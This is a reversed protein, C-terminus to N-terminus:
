FTLKAAKFGTAGSAAQGSQGGQTAQPRGGGKSAKFEELMALAKDADYIVVEALQEPTFPQLLEEGM